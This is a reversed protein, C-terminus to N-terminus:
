EPPNSWFSCEKLNLSINFNPQLTITQKNYCKYFDCAGFSLRKHSGGVNKLANFGNENYALSM